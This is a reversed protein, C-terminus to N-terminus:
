VRSNTPLTLHTYSVAEFTAYEMPHDETRVALRRLAPDPEPERPVAWSMLVGEYELRLDYHLRTAWHKQIVFVLEGKGKEATARGRPEPTKQFDRKQRYEELPAMM